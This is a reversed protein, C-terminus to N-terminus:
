TGTGSSGSGSGSSGSGSGSGSSAATFAPVGDTITYTGRTIDGGLKLTFSIKRDVTNMEGLELTCDDIKWAKQNGEGDPPFCILCPVKAAEGTPLDYFMGFVFEYMDNGANMVIEQPLEPAYHDVETVPTEYCIYDYEETQPNPNLAFITSKDIRKWSATGSGQNVDLFPICMHKKLMTEPM